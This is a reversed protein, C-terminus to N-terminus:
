ASCGARLGHSHARAAEGTIWQSLGGATAIKGDLTAGAKLVMYPRDTRRLKEGLAKRDPQPPIHENM